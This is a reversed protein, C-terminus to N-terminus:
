VQKKRYLKIRLGSLYGAITAMAIGSVALIGTIKPNLNQTVGTQVDGANFPSKTVIRELTANSLPQGNGITDKDTNNITVDPNKGTFQVGATQNSSTDAFVTTATPVALTLASSLAIVSTFLKIKNM